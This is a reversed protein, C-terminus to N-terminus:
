KIILRNCFMFAISIAASTCSLRSNSCTTWPFSSITMASLAYQLWARLSHHPFGPTALPINRLGPRPCFNRGAVTRTVRRNLRIRQPISLIKPERFRLAPQRRTRYTPRSGFRNSSSNLHMQQFKFRSAL